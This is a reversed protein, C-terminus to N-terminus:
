RIFKMIFNVKGCEISGFSHFNNLPLTNNLFNERESKERYLIEQLKEPANTTLEAYEEKMLKTNVDGYTCCSGWRHQKQAKKESVLEENECDSCQEDFNGSDYYPVKHEANKSACYLKFRGQYQRHCQNESIKKLKPFKATPQPHRALYLATSEVLKAETGPLSERWEKIQDQVGKQREDM